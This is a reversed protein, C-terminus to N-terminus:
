NVWVNNDQVFLSVFAWKIKRGIRSRYSANSASGRLTTVMMVTWSDTLIVFLNCYDSPRFTSWCLTRSPVATKLSLSWAASELGSRCSLVSSFLLPLLFFIASFFHSLPWYIIYKNIYLNIYKFKIHAGSNFKIEWLLLVETIGSSLAYYCTFM